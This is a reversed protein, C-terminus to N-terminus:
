QKRLPKKSPRPKPKSARAKPAATAAAPVDGQAEIHVYTRGNNHVVHYETIKM